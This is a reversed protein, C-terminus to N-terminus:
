FIIIFIGAGQLVIFCPMRIVYARVEQDIATSITPIAATVRALTVVLTVEAGFRILRRALNSGIFGM